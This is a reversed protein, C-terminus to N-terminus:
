YCKEVLFNHEVVKIEFIMHLMPIEVDPPKIISDVVPGV